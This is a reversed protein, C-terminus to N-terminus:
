QDEQESNKDEDQLSVRSQSDREIQKRVNTPDEESSSALVAKSTDVFDNCTYNRHRKRPGTKKNTRRYGTYAFADFEIHPNHTTLDVPDAPEELNIIEQGRQRWDDRADDFEVLDIAAKNLSVLRPIPVDVNPNLKKYQNQM